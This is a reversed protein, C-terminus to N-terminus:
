GKFVFFIKASQPSISRCSDVFAVLDTPNQDPTTLVLRRADTTFPFKQGLATESIAATTSAGDTCDAPGIARSLWTVFPGNDYTPTDIFGYGQNGVYSTPGDNGTWSGVLPDTPCVFLGIRVHASTTNEPNLPAPVESGQTFNIQNYLSVQDIFPLIMSHLSFGTGNTRFPLSQTAAVYANLAIGIQKLNNSCQIRRAAERTAQVAPILIAVLIAIISCVVLVEILTFGRRNDRRTAEQLSDCHPLM